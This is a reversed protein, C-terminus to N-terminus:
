SGGAPPDDRGPRAPSPRYLQSSNAPISRARATHGARPHGAVPRRRAPASSGAPRPPRSGGQGAVGRDPNTGGTGPQESIGRDRSVSPGPRVVGTGSGVATSGAAAAGEASASGASPAMSRAPSPQAAASTPAPPTPQTSASTTARTSASRSTTRERSFGGTRGGPGADPRALRHRPNGWGNAAAAAPIRATTVLRMLTRQRAAALTAHAPRGVVTRLVSSISLLPKLWRRVVITAAILILTTGLSTPALGMLQTAFAIQIVAVVGALLGSFVVMAAAKVSRELVSPVVVAALGVLPAAIPLLACFVMLGLVLLLALIQFWAIPAVMLLARLGAGARSAGAGQIAQYAVPNESAAHDAAQQWAAKKGDLLAKASAPNAAIAASETKTLAQAEYLAEALQDPASAGVEGTKWSAWLLRDVVLNRPGAVPDAHLQTAVSSQVMGLADSLTSRLADALSVGAGTLAISAVGLAVIGLAARTLVRATEARGAAVLMILASITVAVGAWPSVLAHWLAIATSGAAASASNLQTGTALGALGQWAATSDVATGMLINGVATSLEAGVDPMVCGTDYTSWSLGAYGRTGYRSPDHIALVAPDLVTADSSAPDEVAPAVKCDMLPIAVAVGPFLLLGAVTAGTVVAVAVAVRRAVGSVSRPQNDDSRAPTRAHRRRRCCGAATTLRCWWPPAYHSSAPWTTSHRAPIETM